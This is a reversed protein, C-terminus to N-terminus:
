FKNLNSWNFCIYNQEDLRKIQQAKKKSPNAKLCQSTILLNGILFIMMRNKRM